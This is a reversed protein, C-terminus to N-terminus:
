RSRWLGRLRWKWPEAPDGAASASSEWKGVNRGCLLAETAKVSASKNFCFLVFCAILVTPYPSAFLWVFVLHTEELQGRWVGVWGWEWKLTQPCTRVPIRRRRLRPTCCSNSGHRKLSYKNFKKKKRRLDACFLWTQADQCTRRWLESSHLTLSPIRLSM